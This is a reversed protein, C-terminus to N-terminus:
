VLGKARQEWFLKEEKMVADTEDMRQESTGKNNKLCLLYWARNTEFRSAFLAEERLSSFYKERSEGEKPLRSVHVEQYENKMFLRILGDGIEFEIGFHSETKM